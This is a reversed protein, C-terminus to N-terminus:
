APVLEDALETLWLAVADPGDLVTDARAVLADQETSASCILLGGVGESRLTTSLTTRRCTVWTTM